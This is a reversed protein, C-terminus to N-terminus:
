PYFALLRYGAVRTSPPADIAIGLSRSWDGTAPIMAGAAGLEEALLVRRTIPQDQADTVTLEMAPVAVPVRGTNRLTFGLRYTDNRLRNFGSSEIVIAEIQRPPGITCNLWACMQQLAPRLGPQEQALRDRDQWAFQLLLLLALTVGAVVLGIRVRPRRWFAERQAQRVFSVANLEAATPEEDEDLVSQGTRPTPPVFDSDGLDGLDSRRFVFPTDLPSPKLSQSDPGFFSSDAAPESDPPV